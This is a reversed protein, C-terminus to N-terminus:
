TSQLYRIAAKLMQVDHGFHGLGVNHNSCLLGRIRGSMEDHDVCLPMLEGRITRTEPQHCIDCLGDRVRFM